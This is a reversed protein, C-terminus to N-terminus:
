NSEGDNLENLPLIHEEWLIFEFAYNDEIFMEMRECKTM